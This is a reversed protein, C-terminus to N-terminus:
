TTVNTACVVIRGHSQSHCQTGLSPPQIGQGVNADLQQAAKQCSQKGGKHRGLTHCRNVGGNANAEGGELHALSLSLSLSLCSEEMGEGVDRM